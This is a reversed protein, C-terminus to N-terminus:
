SMRNVMTRNEHKVLNNTYLIESKGYTISEDLDMEFRRDSPCRQRKQVCIFERRTKPLWILHKASTREAMKPPM